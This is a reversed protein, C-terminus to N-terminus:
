HPLDVPGCGLEPAPLRDRDSPEAQGRGLHQSRLASAPEKQNERQWRWEWGM